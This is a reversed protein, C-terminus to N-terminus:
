ARALKPMSYTRMEVFDKLAQIGTAEADLCWQKLERLLEEAGRQAQGVRGAPAAQVRLHDASEPQRRSDRQDPRAATTWWPTTAACCGSPLACWAAAANGARALEQEVLPAVVTEAYKAMVRFRDNLV